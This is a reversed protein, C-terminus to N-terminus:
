CFILHIDLTAQAKKRKKCEIESYHAEQQLNTKESNCNSFKLAKSYNSRTLLM